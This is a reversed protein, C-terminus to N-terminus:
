CFTQDGSKEEPGEANDEGEKKDKGKDDAM